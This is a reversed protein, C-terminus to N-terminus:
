EDSSVTADTSTEDINSEGITLRARYKETRMLTIMEDQIKKVRGLQDAILAMVGIIFGLLLCASGLTIFSTWPSTGGTFVWWASVFAVLLLGIAIFFLATTGFFALPRTDRMARVIIPATNFAYVWLDSAVRSEGFERTGRVKLPVETMPVGKAALDIFMEHTYTFDGFLTMRLATERTYARFGCSVDTFKAKWIIWNVIRCMMRNGWLKLRPMEPINSSDGFRTCTVFGYGGNLIPEVLKPVDEPAFQGDADMNVVVDAGLRLAHDIGTTFARGVGMNYPHIAVHAHADRALIATRDTSGDDVVVVEIRGVGAIARPVRNIVDAITAEENLAPVIVVLLSNSDPSSQGAADRTINATM